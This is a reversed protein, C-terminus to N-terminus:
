LPNSELTLSSFNGIRKDQSDNIRSIKLNIKRILIVKVRNKEHLVERIILKQRSDIIQVKGRDKHLKKDSPNTFPQHIISSLNLKIINIIQHYRM